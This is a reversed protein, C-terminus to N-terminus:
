EVVGFREKRMMFIPICVIYAFHRVCLYINTKWGVREFLLFLLGLVRLCTMPNPFARDQLSFVVSELLSSLIFDLKGM